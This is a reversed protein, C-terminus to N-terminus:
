EEEILGRCEGGTVSGAGGAPSVVVPSKLVEPHFGVGPLYLIREIPSISLMDGDLAPLLYPSVFM